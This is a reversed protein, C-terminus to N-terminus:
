RGVVKEVSSGEGFEMEEAGDTVHDMVTEDALEVPPAEAVGPEPPPGDPAVIAALRRELETIDVDEDLRHDPEGDGTAAAGPAPAEIRAPPPPPPTSRSAEAKVEAASMARRLVKLEDLDGQFHVTSGSRHDAGIAHPFTWTVDAGAKGAGVEVGDAYLRLADASPDRVMAVHHWAGDNLGRGGSLDPSGNDWYARLRGDQVEWNFANAQPYSGLINARSRGKELRIWALWTSPGTGADLPRLLVASDDVGDFRLAKGARGFRDKSPSPAGRHLASHRGQNVEDLHGDLPWHAAVGADRPSALAAAAAPYALRTLEEVDLARRYVVVEDLQGQFRVSAEGRDDSGLLHVHEWTVDPGAKGTAALRADIYLRMTDSAPDRVAAVHHWTEDQIKIVGPSTYLDVKGDAWYM